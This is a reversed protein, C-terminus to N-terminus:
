SRLSPTTRDLAELLLPRTRQMQAKQPFATTLERRDSAGPLDLDTYTDAWAPFTAALGGLIGVRHLFRRRDLTRILHGSVSMADSNSRATLAPWRSRIHPLEIEMNDNM